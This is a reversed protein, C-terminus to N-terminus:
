QQSEGQLNYTRYLNYKVADAGYRDYGSLVSEVYTLDSDCKVLTKAANYRVWWESDKTAEVLAHKSEETNLRGLEKVAASRVMWNKDHAATILPHEYESKGLKGLARVCAIKINPNSSHLGDLYVPEFETFARDSLGKIVTARIYDDCGALIKRALSRLDGNFTSMLEMIIRFSYNYNKQLGLIYKVLTDEDGFSALAMAANYSLDQNKSFALRRIAPLESDESFAAVKRCAFAKEYTNGTHLMRIYFALPQVAENLACVAAKQEDGVNASTLTGIIKSSITDMREPNRGIFRKMTAIENRMAEQTPHYLISEYMADIKRSAESNKRAHIQHKEALTYLWILEVAILILCIFLCLIAILEYNM